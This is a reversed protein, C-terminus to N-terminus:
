HDPTRACGPTEARAGASHLHHSRAISTSVQNWLKRPCNSQPEYPEKQRSHHSTSPLCVSQWGHRFVRNRGPGFHSDSSSAPATSHQSPPFHPGHTTPAQTSYNISPPSLIIETSQSENLPHPSFLDGCSFEQLDPFLKFVPQEEGSTPNRKIFAEHLSESRYRFDIQVAPHVHMYKWNESPWNGSPHLTPWMGMETSGNATFLRMKQSIKDGAAVSVDGGAWFLTQLNESLYQLLAPSSAIEEIHPPTLTMANLKLHQLANAAAQVSPPLGSLPYVIITGCSLPFM